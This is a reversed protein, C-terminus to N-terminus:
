VAEPLAASPLQIIKLRELIEDRERMLDDDITDVAEM